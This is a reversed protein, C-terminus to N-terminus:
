YNAWNIWNPWNNWNRWNPWNPWNVWQLQTPEGSKGQNGDVTGTFPSKSLKERLSAVRGPISEPQHVIDKAPNPSIPACLAGMTLLLVATSGKKRPHDAESMM